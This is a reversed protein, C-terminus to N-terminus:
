DPDFGDQMVLRQESVDIFGFQFVGQQIEGEIGFICHGIASAQGDFRAQYGPM